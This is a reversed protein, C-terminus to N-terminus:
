VQATCEKLGSMIIQKSIKLKPAPSLIKKCVSLKFAHIFCIHSTNILSLSLSSHLIAVFMYNFLCFRVAISKYILSIKNKREYLAFAQGQESAVPISYCTVSLNLIPRIGSPLSNIQVRQLSHKMGVRLLRTDYGSSVQKNCTKGYKHHTLLAM